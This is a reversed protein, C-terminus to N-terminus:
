IDIRNKLKQIVEGWKEKHNKENAENTIAFTLLSLGVVLLYVWWPISTWFDKTLKFFNIVIAILSILFFPGMKKLYSIIVLIVLFGIFIMADVISTYTFLAYGYVLTLAIYEFPKYSINYKKLVTRAILYIAIVYGILLALTSQTVNAELLLKHWLVALAIVSTVYISNVKKTFGLGLMLLFFILLIIGDTIGSYQLIAFTFVIATAIGEIGEYPGEVKQIVTRSILYICGLYGLYKVLTITELGIDHVIQNYLFLGAIYAVVKYLNNQQHAFIHVIAWCLVLVINMYINLHMLLITLVIYVASAISYLNMEKKLSSLFINMAILIISAAIAIPTSLIHSVYVCPIVAIMPIVDYFEELKEVKRYWLYMGSALITLLFNIISPEINLGIFSAIWSLVIYYKMNEERQIRELAIIILTSVLPIYKVYETINLLQLFGYLIFNFAFYAVMKYVYNHKLLYHWTYLITVTSSM